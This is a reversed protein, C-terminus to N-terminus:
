ADEAALLRYAVSALVGAVVEAVGDGDPGTFQRAGLDTHMAWDVPGAVGVMVAPVVRSVNGFDTSFPMRPLPDSPELGLDTLAARAVAALHDDPDISEVRRLARWSRHPLQQRAAEVLSEAEEATDAALHVIATRTGAAADVTERDIRLGAAAAASALDADAPTELAVFQMVRSGPWVGTLTEPHVYVVQDVGDFGGRALALAKGGGEDLASPSVLEDAPLGLLVLRGRWAARLEALALAAGVAGGAVQGHGCSPSAVVGGDPGPLAVADYVAVLAVTPGPGAQGDFSARFATPLGVFPQEVVFDPGLAGVIRAVARHEQYALEPDRNVADSVGTIVPRLRDIAASLRALADTLTMGTSGNKPQTTM